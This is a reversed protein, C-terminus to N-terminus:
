SLTQLQNSSFHGANPRSLTAWFFPFFVHWALCRGLCHPHDQRCGAPRLRKQPLRGPSLIGKQTPMSRPARDKRRKPHPSLIACSLAGAQATDAGPTGELNVGYPSCSEHRWKGMQLTPLYCSRDGLTATCTFHKLTVPGGFGHRTSRHEPFTRSAASM